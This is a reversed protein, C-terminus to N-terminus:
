SRVKIRLKKAPWYDRFSIEPVGRAKNDENEAKWNQVDTTDKQPETSSISKIDGTKSNTLYVTGDNNLGKSKVEDPTAVSWSEAQPILEPKGNTMVYKTPDAIGFQAAEQPAMPRSGVKQTQRASYIEAQEPTM